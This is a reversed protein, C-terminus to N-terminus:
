ALVDRDSKPIEHELEPKRAHSIVQRIKGSREKEIEDVLLLVITMEGGFVQKLETVLREAKQETFGRDKVVYLKVERENEQVLRWHAIGGVSRITYGIPYMSVERGDPRIVFDDKRGIIKAMLPLGRGCPCKEDSPVGIDGLEYRILPMAYNYLCTVIIEGEEGPSVPKNEEVFEIVSSLVDMHYGVHKECEWALREVEVSGYLDFVEAGLVSEILTREERFLVEATSFVLKPSFKRAKGEQVAKALLYLYSSYAFIADPDYNEIMPLQEKIPEVASFYKRRLVGLQQFWYRSKPFRRPDGVFMMKDRLRLGCEFFPLGFLAARYDNGRPDVLVKTPVGTTGATDYSKCKEVGYNRAVMKEPFNEHFEKKTLLPLKQLDQVTKIDDPRLGLSKFTAHYYEVNEYAHKIIARLKEEQIKLLPETRM